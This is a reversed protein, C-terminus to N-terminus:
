LNKEILKELVDANNPDFDGAYIVKGTKDILVVTPFGDVGYSDATSEGDYLIQFKAQNNKQFKEIVDKRDSANIAVLKFDTNKYKEEILNLKPVAAICYGCFSIWFEILVVKNKYQSLSVPAGDSLSPLNWMPANQGINILRNETPKEPKYQSLYTSYYWSTKSPVADKAKKYSFSTRTFDKNVDNKRSLQVPLFNSRDITLRYTFKRPTTIFYDGKLTLIKSDLVFEVVYFSKGNISETSIAKTITKDSIIKPLSNRLTVLSDYFGPLSDFDQFSPTKKITINKTKKNRLFYESGNFVFIFNPEDFQFRAGIVTDTSSFDLFSEIQMNSVFGTSEFNLERHFTFNLTKLKALKDSVKRLVNEASETKSQAPINTISVGYLICLFIGAFFFRM